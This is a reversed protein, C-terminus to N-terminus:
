FDLRMGVNLGHMYVNHAYAGGTLQQDWYVNFDYGVKLDFHFDDSDGFYSGWGLGLCSDTVARVTNYNNGSVILNSLNSYRTYMVSQALNGFIRFGSGMMWNSEFGFRPGLSWSDHNYDGFQNSVWLARLGCAFNATLQKGFYFPRDFSFSLDDFTYKQSNSDNSNRYWTYMAYADWNDMGKMNLGLGVQFGSKYSENEAIGLGERNLHWYIYDATLFVDWGADVAYAASQNYGGSMQGDMVMEGPMYSPQKAGGAKADSMPQDAQVVFPVLAGIMALGAKLEKNLM